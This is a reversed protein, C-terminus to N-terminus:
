LKTLKLIRFGLDADRYQTAYGNRLIIKIWWSSVHSYDGGKIQIDTVREVYRM